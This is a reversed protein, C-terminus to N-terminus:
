PKPLSDPEETVLILQGSISKSSSLFERPDPPDGVLQVNPNKSSPLFEIPAEQAPSLPGYTADTLRELELQQPNGPNPTIGHDLALSKSSFLFSAAAESESSAPLAGHDAPASDPTQQSAVGPHASRQASRVLLFLAVLAAAVSLSRALRIWPKPM